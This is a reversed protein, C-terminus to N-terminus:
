LLLLSISTSIFGFFLTDKYNGQDKFDHIHYWPLNDGSYLSWDTLSTFWEYNLSVIAFAFVLIAIGCGIPSGPDFKIQNEKDESM